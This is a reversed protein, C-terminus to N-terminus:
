LTSQMSGNEGLRSYRSILDTLSLVAFRSVELDEGKSASTLDVLGAEAEFGSRGPLRGLSNLYEMSGALTVTVLWPQVETTMQHYLAAMIGSALFYGSAHDLAQCPLPRAVSHASEKQQESLNEVTLAANFHEAESQNIGSVTQVISDFGRRGQWEAPLHQGYASLNAIVLTPNVDILKDLTVGLGALADPRYAQLLVDAGKVLDWFKRLDVPNKLDLHVSKKGRATDRDVDPLAPLNPSTIWLVEAGYAALTRGAVPGALVRALDLVRLGRLPKDKSACWWVRKKESSPGLAKIHVPFIAGEGSSSRTTSEWEPRSRVMGIVAGNKIGNEELQLADWTATQEDIQERSATEDLGLTKLAAARHHAWGDHVRVFRGNQCPHLGGIPEVKFNAGKGGYFCLRESIFEALASKLPVTVQPISNDGVRHAYVLSAILGALSISTQALVGVHYSSPFGHKQDSPTLSSLLKHHNPIALHRLLAPLLSQPSPPRDM